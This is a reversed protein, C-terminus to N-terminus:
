VCLLVSVQQTHEGDLIHPCNLSCPPLFITFRTAVLLLYFQAIPHNIFSVLFIEFDPHAPVGRFLPLPTNCYVSRITLVESQSEM